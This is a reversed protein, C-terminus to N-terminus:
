MAKEGAPEDGQDDHLDRMDGRVQGKAIAESFELVEAKLNDFKIGLAAAAEVITQGRNIKWGSWEGQNNKEDATSLNYVRYWLPATFESGDARKLKESTAMLMWKKAKKIQTSTMPIFCKRRGATLNLGFLQMTEAILNGNPLVNQNKDNRPAKDLIAPDHHINVLGKGTDRPAWEIYCKSFVVPLFAVGDPFMESAAIDAIVGVKAGEIYEPKRANLQPSLAQLIGLRPILVDNATVNELGAGAYAEFAFADSATAVATTKDSPPAAVAKGPQAKPATANAPKSMNKLVKELKLPKHLRVSAPVLLFAGPVTLPPSKERSKM